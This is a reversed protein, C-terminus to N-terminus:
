DERDLIGSTILVLVYIVSSIVAYLKAADVQIVNLTAFVVVSLINRHQLAM